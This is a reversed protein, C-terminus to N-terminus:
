TPIRSDELPAQFHLKGHCPVYILLIGRKAEHIEFDLDSLSFDARSTM